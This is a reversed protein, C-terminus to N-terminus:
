ALILKSLVLSLKALFCVSRVSPCGSIRSLKNREESGGPLGVVTTKRSRSLSQMLGAELVRMSGTGSDEMRSTKQGESLSLYKGNYQLM